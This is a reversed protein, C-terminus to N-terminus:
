LTLAILDLMDEARVAHVAWQMWKPKIVTEM